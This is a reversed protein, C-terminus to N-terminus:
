RQSCRCFYVGQLGAVVNCDKKVAPSCDVGRASSIKSSGHRSVTPVRLDVGLETPGPADSM